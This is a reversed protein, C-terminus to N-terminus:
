VFPPGIFWIVLSYKTGETVPTIRHEQYSPYVVICGLKDTKVTRIHCKEDKYFAFELDGGKFDENLSISMSLKRVKDHMYGDNPMNYVSLHDSKGDSHLAYFGDKEYKTIQMAEAYKIDYRWGSAKNAEVMYPWIADYIWKEETWSIECLRFEKDERVASEKDTVPTFPFNKHLVKEENPIDHEIRNTSQHGVEANKWKNDAIHIIRDCSIKGIGDSFAYWDFTNDM